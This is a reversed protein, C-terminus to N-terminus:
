YSVNKLLASPLDLTVTRIFPEMSEMIKFSYLNGYNSLCYFWGDERSAAPAALSGVGLRGTWLLKGDKLDLLYVPDSSTTVVLYNGVRVPTLGVGSEFARKWIVVGTEVDLAYFYGDLGSFYMRNNEVLFGGYSGVPFVWRTDGNLRNLRYVRGDFTAVIVSESDVYPAMDIDYFRERTRLSKVWLERGTEGSLAVFYGDSFGVFVDGAFVVPSSSGRITMKEDGRHSYHWLEKGDVMSLAYLDGSSSLGLVKDKAVTPSSLWESRIPFVWADSLDRANLAYLTGALDGVVIKSRGYTLAGEVGAGLRRHWVTYGETRHVAYLDGDLNSFYVIDGVIVPQTREQPRLEFRHSTRTTMVWQSLVGVESAISASGAWLLGLLVQCVFVRRM